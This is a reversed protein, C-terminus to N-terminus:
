LILLIIVEKQIKTVYLKLQNYWQLVQCYSMDLYSPHSWSKSKAYCDLSDPKVNQNYYLDSTPSEDEISEILPPLWYDVWEPTLSEKRLLSRTSYSHDFTLKKGKNNMFYDWSESRFRTWNAPSPPM